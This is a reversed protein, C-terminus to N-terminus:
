NASSGGCVFVRRVLTYISPVHLSFLVNTKLITECSSLCVQICHYRTRQKVSSEGERPLRHLQRGALSDGTSHIRSPVVALTTFEFSCTSCYQSHQLASLWTKTCFGYHHHHFPSLSPVARETLALIYGDCTTESKTM